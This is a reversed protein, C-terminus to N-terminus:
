KSELKEIKEELFRINIRQSDISTELCRILLRTTEHLRYLQKISKFVRM